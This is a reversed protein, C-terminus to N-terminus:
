NNSRSVELWLDLATIYILRINDGVGLVMSAAGALQLGNADELTLTNTDSSGVILIQQGNYGDAIQPNSSINIAAATNFYMVPSLMASTIGTGAVVTGTSAPLDTILFAVDASFTTTNDLDIAAVDTARLADIGLTDIMYITSNIKLFATRLPDGTGDNPTTGIDVTDLARSMTVDKITEPQHFVLITLGLIILALFGSLLYTRTTDKM